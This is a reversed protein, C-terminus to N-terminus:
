SSQTKNSNTTTQIGFSKASSLRRRVLLAGYVLTLIVLSYGLTQNAPTLNSFLFDTMAQRLGTLKWFTIKLFLVHLVFAMLAYQGFLEFFRLTKKLGRVDVSYYLVSFLIFGLGSTWLVYSSTWLTKNMPFSISWGWGLVLLCLGSFFIGLYGHNKKHALLWMGLFNGTLASAIAPLTSFLGEPDYTPKYLHHSGLLLGDIKGALNTDPLFETSYALLSLWYGMLIGFFLIVQTRLSTKLYLLSTVLYCLAMRQLVGMIRLHHFDFHNPFLNLAIGLFFLFVSRKFVKYLITSEAIQKNKLAHISLVASVGVMLIFFPFVLDALTCGNWSAHVLWDFATNSDVCNVVIMLAVTIGRFIDISSIRGM